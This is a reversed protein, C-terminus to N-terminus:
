TLLEKGDLRVVIPFSILSVIRPTSSGGAGSFLGSRGIGVQSQTRVPGVRHVRFPLAVPVGITPLSFSPGGLRVATKIEANLKHAANFNRDRHVVEMAMDFSIEEPWAELTPRFTPSYGYKEGLTYWSDNSGTVGITLEPFDGDNWGEKFPNKVTEATLKIRNRVAIGTADVALPAHAEILAWARETLITAHDIAPM